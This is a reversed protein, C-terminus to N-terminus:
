YNFLAIISHSINSQSCWVRVVRTVLQNDTAANLAIRIHRTTQLLMNRYYLESHHFLSNVITDHNSVTGLRADTLWVSVVRLTVCVLLM